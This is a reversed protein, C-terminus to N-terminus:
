HSKAVLTIILYSCKWQKCFGLKLYKTPDAFRVDWVRFVFESGLPVAALM